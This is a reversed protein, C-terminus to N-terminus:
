NPAIAIFCMFILNMDVFCARFDEKNGDVEM